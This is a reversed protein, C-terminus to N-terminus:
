IIMDEFRKMTDEVFGKWKGFWQIGMRSLGVWRVIWTGPKGMHPLVQQILWTFFGGKSTQGEKKLHGRGRVESDGGMLENSAFTM